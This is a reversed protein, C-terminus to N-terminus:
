QKFSTVKPLHFYCEWIISGLLYIFVPAFLNRFLEMSWQPAIQGSNLTANLTMFIILLVTYYVLGINFYQKARKNLFLLNITEDESSRHYIHELAAQGLKMMTIDMELPTCENENGKFTIPFGGNALHIRNKGYVFTDHIAQGSFSQRRIHAAPFERDSSSVSILHTDPALDALEEKSLSNAGTCGIVAQYTALDYQRKGQVIDYSDCIFGARILLKKLASGISGQGLLLLRSGPIVGYDQFYELIRELCLRVIYNTEIDLKEWSSAVNTVALPLSKRLLISKGSSTQEIGKVWSFHKLKKHVLSAEQLLLGGDDLIVLGSKKPIAKLCEKIALRCQAVQWDDFSSSLDFDLAQRFVRCGLKEMESIVKLNASYVKPLIFIHQPPLGKNILQKLLQLQPQLLHQSILLYVNDWGDPPQNIRRTAMATLLPMEDEQYVGKALKDAYAPVWQELVKLKPLLEEKESKSLLQNLTHAMRNDQDQNMLSGLDLLQYQWDKSTRQEYDGGNEDEFFKRFSKFGIFNASREAEGLAMSAHEFPSWHGANTLKDCLVIDKNAKRIRDTLGYSIRACRAASIKKLTELDGGQESARILPLHWEGPQLLQPQTIALQRKIDEALKNMEPQAEDSNRLKLFNGWETATVIVETWMWPELIRNVLEKQLGILEGLYQFFCPIFRSWLWINKAITLQWSALENGGKMGSQYSSFKIPIFPDQLVRQRLVKAPMARSSASNRSLARHSNIHAQIFKPMHLVFTAIRKGTAASESYLLLDAKVTTNNRLM